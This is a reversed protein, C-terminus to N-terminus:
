KREEKFKPSGQIGHQAKKNKPSTPPRWSVGGRIKKKGKKLKLLGVKVPVHNKSTRAKNRYPM